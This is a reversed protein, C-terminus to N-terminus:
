GGFGGKAVVSYIIDFDITIITKPSKLAQKNLCSNRGLIRGDENVTKSYCKLFRTSAMKKLVYFIALTFGVPSIM